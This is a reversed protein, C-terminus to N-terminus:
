AIASRLGSFITNECNVLEVADSIKTLIMSKPTPIYQPVPLSSLYQPQCEKLTVVPHPGIDCSWLDTNASGQIKPRFERPFEPQCKTKQPQQLFDLMVRKAILVLRNETTWIPERSISGPAFSKWGIPPRAPRDVSSCSRSNKRESHVITGNGLVNRSRAGLFHCSSIELNEGLSAGVPIGIVNEKMPSIKSTGFASQANTLSMKCTSGSILGVASSSRWCVQSLEYSLLM